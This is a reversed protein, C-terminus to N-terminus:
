INKIRKKSEFYNILLLDFYKLRKFLSLWRRHSNFACIKFYDIKRREYFSFQWLYPEVEKRYYHKIDNSMLTKIKISVNNSTSIGGVRYKIVVIDYATHIMNGNRTYKIYFPGDEWLKYSEDWYGNVSLNEKTQYTCSGSAMEYYHCQAFALYQKQPSDLAKINTLVANSPIYRIPHLTKEDCLLRRFAILPYGTQEFREVVKSLTNEDFLVDDCSLNILYKGNAKRHAININKVTGLNTTNSYIIINVLNFRKHMSIYRNIQEKPFEKSGDDGIIIEINPYNQYLISHITEYLYRFKKYTLVTCSVLPYDM